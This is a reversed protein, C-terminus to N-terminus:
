ISFTYGSRESSRWLSKKPISERHQKGVLCSVCKEVEETSLYLLGRVMNQHKLTRLGKYHLHGYRRHWLQLDNTTTTKLCEETDDERRKHAMIKFLKNRTMKSHMINSCGYDLYWAEEKDEEIPTFAM